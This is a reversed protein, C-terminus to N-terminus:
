NWVWLPKQINNNLVIIIGSKCSSVLLVQLWRVAIVYITGNHNRLMVLGQTAFVDSVNKIM